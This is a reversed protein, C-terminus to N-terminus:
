PRGGDLLRRAEAAVVDRAFPCQARLRLGELYGKLLRKRDGGPGHPFRWAGLCQVFNLEDETTWRGYTPRRCAARRQVDAPRGAARFLIRKATM